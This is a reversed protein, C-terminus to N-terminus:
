SLARSSKNVPIGIIHQTAQANVDQSLMRQHHVMEGKRTSVLLSVDRKKDAAATKTAKTTKVTKTAKKTTAKTATKKTTAPKVSAKAVKNHRVLNEDKGGPAFNANFNRKQNEFAKKIDPLRENRMKLLKARRAAEAQSKENM